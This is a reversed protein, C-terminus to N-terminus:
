QNNIKKKEVRLIKDINDIKRNNFKELQLIRADFNTVNDSGYFHKRATKIFNKNKQLWKQYIKKRALLNLYELNRSYNKTKNNSGM